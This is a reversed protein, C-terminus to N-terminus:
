KISKLFHIANQLDLDTRIPEKQRSIDKNNNKRTLVLYGIRKDKIDILNIISDKEKNIKVIEKELEKIKETNEVYIINDTGKNSKFYNKKFNYLSYLIVIIVILVITNVITRNINKIM